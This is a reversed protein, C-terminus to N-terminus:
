SELVEEEVLGGCNYEKIEKRSDCRKIGKGVEKNRGVGRWVEENRGVGRWVEKNRGM